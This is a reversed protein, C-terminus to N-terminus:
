LGLFDREDSGLQSFLSRRRSAARASSSRGGAATRSAAVADRGQQDIEEQREQNAQEREEAFRRETQELQQELATAGTLDKIGEGIAQGIPRVVHDALADGVVGGRLGINDSETDIGVLGGTAVQTGVNLVDRVFSNRGM